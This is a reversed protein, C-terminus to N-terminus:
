PEVPTVPSLEYLSRRSRCSAGVVVSKIIEHASFVFQIFIFSCLDSGSKSCLIGNKVQVQYTAVNKLCVFLCVFDEDSPHPSNRIRNNATLCHHEVAHCMLPSLPHEGSYTGVRAGTILSCLHHWHHCLNNTHCGQQVSKDADFYIRVCVSVTCPTILPYLYLRSGGHGGSIIGLERGM